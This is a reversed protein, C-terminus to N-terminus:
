QHTWRAACNDFSNASWTKEKSTTRQPVEIFDKRKVPSNFLSRKLDAALMQKMGKNHSDTDNTM